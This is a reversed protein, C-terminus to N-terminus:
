KAYELPLSVTICRLGEEAGPLHCTRGQQSVPKAAMAAAMLALLAATLIHSFKM